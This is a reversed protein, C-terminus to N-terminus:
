LNQFIENINFIIVQPYGFTPQTIIIDPHISKLKKIFFYMNVGAEPNDGAGTELDLDIGDVGFQQKWHGVKFL